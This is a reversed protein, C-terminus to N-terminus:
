KILSHLYEVINQEDGAEYLEIMRHYFISDAKILKGKNRLDLLFDCYEKGYKKQMAFTYNIKVFEQQYKCNCKGIQGNMNHPHYRLIAGGGADPIWHGAQFQAGEAYERCDFCYGGIKDPDISDRRRVFTHSINYLKKQLKKTPDKSVKNIPKRKMAKFTAKIPKQKAIIEAYTLRKFGTRKM